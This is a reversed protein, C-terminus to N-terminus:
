FLLQRGLGLTVQMQYIQKAEPFCAAPDAGEGLHLGTFLLLVWLGAESSALTLEERGLAWSLSPRGQGCVKM